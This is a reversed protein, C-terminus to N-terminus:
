EGKGLTKFRVGKDEKLFSAYADFNGNFDAQLQEDNEWAAKAKDEDSLNAPQDSNAPPVADNSDNQLAALFDAGKEKMLKVVAVAAEAGTTKGDYALSAILDECGSVSQAQVDQIRQNEAQAGEKAGELKADKLKEDFGATAENSIAEVLEPFKEKLEKLTMTEGKKNNKPSVGISGLATAARSLDENYMVADSRLKAVMKDLMHRAEAVAGDQNDDSNDTKRLSNAFGADVIEDGFLWTEADMLSAIEEKDKGTFKAYANAILASMGRLIGGTKYMVNHDGIEIGQANHIMMVANDEAIIEDFAMPIYSAASMAYGSLIGVTKGTYNRVMNFMDLAEGVLGGPSSVTVEVDAGDARDLFEALDRATSEWGIVGEIRYKNM